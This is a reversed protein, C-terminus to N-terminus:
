FNIMPVFFLAMMWSPLGASRLRRATLLIGTIVFPISIALMIWVFELEASTDPFGVAAGINLYNFPSWPRHLILLSVASDIAFKLAFLGFGVLLYTKGSLSRNPALLNSITRSM